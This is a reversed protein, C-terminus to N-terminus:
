SFYEGGAEAAILVEQYAIRPPPPRDAVFSLKLHNIIRDVVSFDTLFAIVKMTGGCQPCFFRIYKFIIFFHEQIGIFLKILLSAYLKVAMSFHISHMMKDSRGYRKWFGWFRRSVLLSPRNSNASESHQDFIM